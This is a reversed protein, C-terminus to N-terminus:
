VDTEWSMPRVGSSSSVLISFARPRFARSSALAESHARCGSFGSVSGQREKLGCEVSERMVVLNRKMEERIQARTLDSIQEERQQMAEAISIGKERCYTRLTEGSEFAKTISM